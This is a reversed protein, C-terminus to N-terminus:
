EANLVWIASHGKKDGRCPPFRKGEDMVVVRHPHKNCHYEGSETCVSGTKTMKDAASEKPKKEKKQVPAEKQSAAPKGEAKPPKAEESKLPSQEDPSVVEVQEGPIDAKKWQLFILAAFVVVTAILAITKLGTNNVGILVVVFIVVMAILYGITYKQLKTKEKRTNM